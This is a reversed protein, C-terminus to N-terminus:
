YVIGHFESCFYKIDITERSSIVNPELDLNRYYMGPTNQPWKSFGGVISDQTEMIFSRNFIPNTM